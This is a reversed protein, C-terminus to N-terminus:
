PPVDPPVYGAVIFAKRDLQNKASNRQRRRGATLGFPRALESLEAIAM